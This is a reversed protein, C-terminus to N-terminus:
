KEENETTTAMLLTLELDEEILNSQERYQTKRKNPCEYAYHGLKHCRYCTVQSKDRTDEEFSAQEERKSQYNNRDQDRGRSSHFRGRGRGRYPQGQNEHRTFMLGEQIDMSREKKNNLREEFTKLRGIAENTDLNSYQEISAVIQLFKDPVANLLKRVLTSDEYALGVSAAKNVFGTLKTTFSDVSENEKMQLMEFETKLTQQKAQQVRDVGVHRTKLADWTAKATKYKSILLLQEEPLAQYLYAITTKDKKADAQTTPQPEIMDWLGNAELIVQMRIAWTTYNTSNLIPCSFHTTSGLIKSSDGQGTNDKGTM